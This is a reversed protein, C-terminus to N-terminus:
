LLVIKNDIVGYYLVGEDETLAKGNTQETVQVKFREVQDFPVALSVAVQDTYEKNLVTFGMQGVIYQIKGLGNYDTM